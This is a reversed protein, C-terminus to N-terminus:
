TACNRFEPHWALGVQAHERALWTVVAHCLGVLEVASGDRPTAPRGRNGARQSSGMKDMWTGANSDNGGFPFGTDPQVGIQVTFGADSMHADIAPGAGRERFVRGQFHADLAEQMVEHLPQVAGSPAEDDDRAFLRAVPAGLLAAGDDVETVYQM